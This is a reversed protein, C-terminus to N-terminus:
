SIDGLLYLRFRRGRGIRASAAFSVACFSSSRFGATDLLRLLSESNAFDQRIMDLLLSASQYTRQETQEQQNLIDLLLRNIYGVAGFVDM